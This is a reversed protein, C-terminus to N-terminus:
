RSLCRPHRDTSNYFTCHDILASGSIPTVVSGGYLYIFRGTGNTGGDFTCNTIAINRLQQPVDAAYITRASNATSGLLFHCNDITVDFLSDGTVMRMVDTTSQITLGKITFGAKIEIRSSLKLIPQTEEAAQITLPVTPKISSSETYEGNSLVLIDGSSAAIVATRLTSSGPAVNITAALVNMACM